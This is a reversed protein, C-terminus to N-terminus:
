AVGSALERAISAAGLLAAQDDLIVKIPISALLGRFRGKDLFADLFSGDRLAPLIKPAIGGGIYVGGTALSKLALNGAEAGYASVFLRLARGARPSVGELAASSIVAAKDGQGRLRRSMAPDAGPQVMKFFEYVNVLGPGSLVREVSVHGFRGMLYRLLQIEEENRPAYDCHGGETAGVLFRGGSRQVFAEGLGTGAAILALNGGPVPRGANLVLFRGKSLEPIAHATAELDNLLAVPARLRRSLRGSDVVWPLSTARSRGKIVPGAIGLAVASLRTRRTGLFADLIEELGGHERSAFRAGDLLALRGAQARFLALNTKTGGIDGALLLPARASGTPKM